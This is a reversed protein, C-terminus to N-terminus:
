VDTCRFMPVDSYRYMQVDTCRFLTVDSYRYTVWQVLMPPCNLNKKFLCLERRLTHGSYGFVLSGKHELTAPYRKSLVQNGDM